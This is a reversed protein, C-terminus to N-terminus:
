KIAKRRYTNKDILLNKMPNFRGGGQQFVCKASDPQYFTNHYIKSEQVPNGRIGIAFNTTLKFLNDHISIYKGAIDTGDKRDAGGHMDFAHSNAYELVVNNRAEYATYPRGTGAISHRNWNFLNKEILAEANDLCIGYGLGERQNHHIYNQYVRNNKSVSDVSFLFIGAHSWGWIACNKVTTNSYGSQIGRSNPISYYNGAAYLSKMQETRRMTDPGCLRLGQICVNPGATTLLFASMTNTFLLAGTYNNYDGGSKLTVGAQITLSAGGTLDIIAGTKVYVIDGSRAVALGNLLEVKNTVVITKSKKLPPAQSEKLRFSLMMSYIIIWFTNM